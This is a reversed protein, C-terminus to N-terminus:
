SVKVGPRWMKAMGKVRAPKEQLGGHMKILVIVFVVNGYFSLIQFGNTFFMYCWPYVFSLYAFLRIFTLEERLKRYLFNVFLGYIIPVLILGPVGLEAYIYTLFTGVNASPDIPNFAIQDSMDNAIYGLMFMSLLPRFFSTGLNYGGSYSHLFRNFNEFPLVAYGYFVAVADDLPPPVDLEVRIFERYTPGVYGAQTATIRTATAIYLICAFVLVAMGLILKKRLTVKHAINRYKRYYYEVVAINLVSIFVDVKSLKLLGFFPCLLALFLFTTKVRRKVAVRSVLYFIPVLIILLNKIFGLKTDRGWFHSTSELDENGVFYSVALIGHPNTLFEAYLYIAFSIGFTILLLHQFRDDRLLAILGEFQQNQRTLPHRKAAGYPILSTLALCMTAWILAGFTRVDWSDELASLKFGACLLPLMWFYFLLNFPSCLDDFLRRNLRKWLLFIGIILIALAM